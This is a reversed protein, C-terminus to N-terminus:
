FENLKFTETEKWKCCLIFETIVMYAHMFIHM